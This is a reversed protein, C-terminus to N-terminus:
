RPDAFESLARSAYWLGTPERVLELERGDSAEARYTREFGASELSPPCIRLDGVWRGLWVARPRGKTDTKVRTRLWCPSEPQHIAWGAETALEAECQRLARWSVTALARPRGVFLLVYGEQLTQVVYCFADTEVWLQRVDGLTTCGMSERMVIQWHAAALKLQYPAMSPAVGGATVIPVTAHDVSEGEEDVLGAALAGSCSGCLTELIATFRSRLQGERARGDQGPPASSRM